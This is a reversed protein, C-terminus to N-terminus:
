RKALYEKLAEKIISSFTYPQKNKRRRASLARIQEEFEPELSITTRFYEYKGKVPISAVSSAPTSAATFSSSESPQDKKAELNGKFKEENVIDSLSVRGKDAM